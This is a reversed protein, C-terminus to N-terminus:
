RRSGGRVEDYYLPTNGSRVLLHQASIYLECAIGNYTFLYKAGLSPDAANNYPAQAATAARAELQPNAGAFKRKFISYYFSGGATSM